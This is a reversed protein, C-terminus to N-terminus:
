PLLPIGLLASVWSALVYAIISILFARIWGVGFSFRIVLLWLL